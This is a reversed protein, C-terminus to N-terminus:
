IASQVSCFGPRDHNGNPLPNPVTRVVPPVAALDDVGVAIPPMWRVDRQRAKLAVERPGLVYTHWHPRRLHAIPGTRGEGSGAHSATAQAARIAAGLRVGADWTTHKQAPYLREGHRRTRVPLPLTPWGPVGERSLESGASCVYLLMSVIPEVISGLEEVVWTEVAEGMAARVSSLLSDGELRLALSLMSDEDGMTDADSATNLLLMLYLPKPDTYSAPEIWCWVGHAPGRFTALGDLEVYVCWGPLRNMVEVPIAGNLETGMLAEKLTPDFRLIIKTMRWAALAAIKAAMGHADPGSLAYALATPAYCWAPWPKKESAIARVKEHRSWVQPVLGPLRDLAALAPYQGTHSNM